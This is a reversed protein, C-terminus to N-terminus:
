EPHGRANLVFEPMIHSRRRVPAVVHDTDAPDLLLRLMASTKIKVKAKGSEDRTWAQFANADPRIEATATITVQAPEPDSELAGLEFGSLGTTVTVSASLSGLDKPVFDRTLRMSSTVTLASELEVPVGSLLDVSLIEAEIVLPDISGPDVSLASMKYTPSAGGSLEITPNDIPGAHTVPIATVSASATGGVLILAPNPTGTAM